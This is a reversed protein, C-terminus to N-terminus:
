FPVTMNGLCEYVNAAKFNIHDVWSFSGSKVSDVRSLVCNDCLIIDRATNFIYFNFFEFFGGFPRSHVSIM